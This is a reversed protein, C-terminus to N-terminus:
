SSNHFICKVPHISLKQSNAGYRVYIVGSLTYPKNRSAPVKIYFVYKGEVNVNDMECEVLPSISSIADQIRSRKNNEVSVGQIINKDDVGVLLIGGSGNAFACVEEALEKVKSPVSIKFESNYGEGVAVINKIEQSTM